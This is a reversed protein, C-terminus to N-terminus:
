LQLFSDSSFGYIKLSEFISGFVDLKVEELIKLPIWSNMDQVHFIGM